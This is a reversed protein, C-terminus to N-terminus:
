ARTEPGPTLVHETLGLMSLHEAMADSPDVITLAVGETSWTKVAAAMIQSLQGGVRRCDSGDIIVPTRRHATLFDYLAGATENTADAPLAFTTKIGNSM